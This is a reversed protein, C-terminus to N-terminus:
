STAWEFHKKSMAALDREVDAQELRDRGADTVRWKRGMNVPVKKGKPSIGIQIEPAGPFVLGKSKLANLTAGAWDTVVRVDPIKGDNKARMAIESATAPEIAALTRLVLEQKPSLKM